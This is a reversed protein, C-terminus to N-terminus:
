HDGKKKLEIVDSFPEAIKVSEVGKYNM